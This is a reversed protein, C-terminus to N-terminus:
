LLLPRKPATWKKTQLQGSCSSHPSCCLMQAASTQHMTAEAYEVTNEQKYYEKSQEAFVDAVKLCTAGIVRMQDDSIPGDQHSLYRDAVSSALHLTYDTLCLTSALGVM